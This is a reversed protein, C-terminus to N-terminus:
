GLWGWVSALGGLRADALFPQHSYRAYDLVLEETNTFQAGDARGFAATIDHFAVGVSCPVRELQM